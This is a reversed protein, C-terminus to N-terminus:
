NRNLIWNSVEELYDKRIWQTEKDFLAHGSHEYNIITLDIDPHDQKLNDLLELSRKVPVNDSEDDIGNIKLTPTNAIVIQKMPDYSGNKDWWIKRKGRARKAFVTSLPGALFKPVGSNLIDNRVEFKVQEEPTTASNVVDVVFNIKDSKSAAIHSIWGGQSLGIVGISTIDNSLNESIYDVAAITDDAFDEFSAIHWEGFSRGCGRKDPLLVTIGRKALYDAQHMYWFNDRDSFGSGHIFVVAIGSSNYPKLLLGGLSTNGNTFQIDQQVYHLSDVRVAQRRFDEGEIQFDLRIESGIVTITADSISDRNMDFTANGIPMLRKTIIDERIDQFHNLVLGAKAGWTVQYEEGKESQYWGVYQDLDDSPYGDVYNYDYEAQGAPILYLALLVLISLIILAILGKLAVKLFKM